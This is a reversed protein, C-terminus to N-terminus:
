DGQCTRYVTALWALCRCSAPTTTANPTSSLTIVLVHFVVGSGIFNMSHHNDAQGNCAQVVM